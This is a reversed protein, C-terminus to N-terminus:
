NYITGVLLDNEDVTNIRTPSYKFILDDCADLPGVPNILNNSYLIKKAQAKSMNGFDCGLYNSTSGMM